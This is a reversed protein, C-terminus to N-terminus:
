RGGAPVLAYGSTVHDIVWRNVDRMLEPPLAAPARYQRVTVDAGAAYLLRQDRALTPSASPGSHALLVRQGRVRDLRFVPRGDTPRPVAGNLAVVGAVKDGLAFGARYAAATGDEVGVLFVRESHIHYTRRTQDVAQQVAETLDAADLGATSGLTIAVFNRRSVAPALSLVDADARDDGPFLVLLPYPYRPEYKEPLFTRVTRGPDAPLAAAYFGEAPRDTRWYTHTNPM